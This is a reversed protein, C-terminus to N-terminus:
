CFNTGAWSESREVRVKRNVVSFSVQLPLRLARDAPVTSVGGADVVDTGSVDLCVYTEIQGTAFDASQLAMSDFALEGVGRLGREALGKLSSIEGELADGVAFESMREPRKGGEQAIMSSMAQYAAYASTAAALAEEDSAFVPAETPTRSTPVPAPMSACGLLGLTALASTTALATLRASLHRM